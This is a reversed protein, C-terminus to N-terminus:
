IRDDLGGHELRYRFEGLSVSIGVVIRVVHIDIGTICSITLVFAL